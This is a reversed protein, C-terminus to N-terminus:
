KGLPIMTNAGPAFTTVTENNEYAEAVRVAVTREDRAAPIIVRTVRDADGTNRFTPVTVTQTPNIVGLKGSTLCGDAFGTGAGKGIPICGSPVQGQADATDTLPSVCVLMGALVACEMMALLQKMAGGM